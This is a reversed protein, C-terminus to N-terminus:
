PTEQRFHCMARKPPELEARPTASSGWVTNKAMGYGEGSGDPHVRKRSAGPECMKKGLAELATDKGDERCSKGRCSAEVCSGLGLSSPSLASVDCRWGPTGLGSRRGKLARSPPPIYSSHCAIRAGWPDCLLGCM